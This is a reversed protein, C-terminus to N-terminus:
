KATEDSSLSFGNIIWYEPYAVSSLGGVIFLMKIAKKMIKLDRRVIGRRVVDM